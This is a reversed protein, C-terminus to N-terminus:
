RMGQTKTNGVESHCCSAIGMHIKYVYQAEPCYLRHFSIYFSGKFHEFIALTYVNLSHFGSHFRVTILEISCTKNNVTILKDGRVDNYRRILITNIGICKSILGNTASGTSIFPYFGACRFIIHANMYYTEGDDSYIMNKVAENASDYFVYDLKQKLNHYNEVNGDSFAATNNYYSAPFVFMGVQKEVGEELTMIDNYLTKDIVGKFRIGTPATARVSANAMVYFSAASENEASAVETSLAVAGVASTTALALLLGAIINRKMVKKM